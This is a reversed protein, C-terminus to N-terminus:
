EAVRKQIATTQIEPVDVLPVELGLSRSKSLTSNIIDIRGRLDNQDVCKRLARQHNAVIAIEGNADAVRHDPIDIVVTPFASVLLTGGAASWADRGGNYWDFIEVNPQGEFQAIFERSQRDLSNHLIKMM